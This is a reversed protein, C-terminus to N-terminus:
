IPRIDWTKRQPLVRVPAKPTQTRSNVNPVQNTQRSMRTFGLDMAYQPRKAVTAPKRSSPQKRATKTPTAPTPDPGADLDDIFQKLSYDVEQTYVSDASIKKPRRNIFWIAGVSLQYMVILPAAMITQNFPDPTPTILAAVIFSGVIVYKQAKMLEKPDQPKITNTIIMLLPLQFLIAFGLLYIAVFSLYEEVTILYTINQETFSNLFNLAAPLSVFYAFFVGLEALALSWAIFAFIKRATFAKKFIPEVYRILHYMTFPIACLAGFVLSLKLAVTFGGAPTTYYLEQGLPNQLVEFLISRFNYALGAGAVFVFAIKFLRSRLEDIHDAVTQKTQQNM